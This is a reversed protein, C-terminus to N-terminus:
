ERNEVVLDAITGEGRVQVVPECPRPDSGSWSVIGAEALARFREVLVEAPKGAPKIEGVVRGRDTITVTGGAKVVRLYRGLHAKLERVGVTMENM